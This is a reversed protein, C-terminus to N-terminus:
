KEKTMKTYHKGPKIVADVLQKKKDKLRLKKEEITGHTVLKMVHVTKLQGIPLCTLQRARRSSSEVVTM